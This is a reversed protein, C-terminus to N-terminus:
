SPVWRCIRPLLARHLRVCCQQGVNPTTAATQVFSLSYSRIPEILRKQGYIRSENAGREIINWLWPNKCGREWTREGVRRERESRQSPYSLVRPVLNSNKADFWHQLRIGHCIMPGLKPRTRTEAENMTELRTQIYRWKDLKDSDCETGLMRRESSYRLAEKAQPRLELSTFDRKCCVVSM